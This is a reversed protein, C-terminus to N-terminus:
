NGNPVLKNASGQASQTTTQRGELFAMRERMQRLESALEDRAKESAKLEQELRARTVESEHLEKM